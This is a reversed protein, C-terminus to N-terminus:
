NGIPIIEFRKRDITYKAKYQSFKFLQLKDKFIYEYSGEKIFRDMDHNWCLGPMHNVIDKPIYLPSDETIINEELARRINTLMTTLPKLELAVRKVSRQTYFINISFVYIFFLVLLSKVVKSSKRYIDDIFYLLFMAVLINPILQYRPQIFVYDRSNTLARGLSLVFYYSFYMLLIVFIFFIKQRERLFKIIFLFIIIFLIVSLIPISYAPQLYSNKSLLGQLEVNKTMDLPVVLFPFVNSLISIFLFNQFVFNSAVNINAPSFLERFRFSYFAPNLRPLFFVWLFILFYISYVILNCFIIDLRLNKSSIMDKAMLLFLIPWIFFPEYCLLGLLLCLSFFLLFFARHLESYSLLLYLATFLLIAGIIIYCHYSWGVIDFHTLLVSLSGIVLLRILSNGTLFLSVKYLM